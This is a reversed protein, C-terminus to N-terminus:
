GNFGLAKDFGRFSAKFSGKFSQQDRLLGSVAIFGACFDLLELRFALFFRFKM